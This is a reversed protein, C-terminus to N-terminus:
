LKCLNFEQIQICNRLEFGYQSFEKENLYNIDKQAWITFYYVQTNKSLEPLQNYILNLNDKQMLEIVDRDPYFLKDVREGIIISDDNTHNLVQEKIQSYKVLNQRVNALSEESGWMVTFICLFIFLGIFSNRIWVAKLSKFFVVVLPLGFIFIPLWYRYYSAGIEVTGSINDSFNFRGYYCILWVSSVSFIILFLNQIKERKTKIFIILGAIMPIIFWWFNLILYFYFNKIVNLKLTGAQVLNTVQEGSINSYGTAFMNGYLLSNFKLVPLVSFAIVLAILLYHTLYEKKFFAIMLTILLFVVWVAESYRTILALGISLGALICLGIIKLNFKTWNIKTILYLGIILLSILLINHFMVRTSFYWFPPLIFLLVSSAFAINSEFIKKMIQYFCSVAIVALIPTLFLIIWKGFIMALMGYILFIGLFSTPVIQDQYNINVSRPTIINNFDKNLDSTITLTSEEAFVKAFLYNVTEDPSNFILPASFTLYSYAFFFLVGFFVLWKQHYKETLFKSFNSKMAIILKAFFIM